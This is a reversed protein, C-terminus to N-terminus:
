DLQWSTYRQVVIFTYKLLKVYLTVIENHMDHKKNQRFTSGQKLELSKPVSLTVKHNIILHPYSYCPLRSVSVRVVGDSNGTMIVNHPDWERM